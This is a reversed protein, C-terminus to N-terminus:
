VGDVEYDYPRKPKRGEHWGQWALIPWTLLWVFAKGVTMLLAWLILFALSAWVLIGAIGIALDVASREAIM